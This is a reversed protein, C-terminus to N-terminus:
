TIFLTPGRGKVGSSIMSVDLSNLQQQVSPRIDIVLILYPLFIYVHARAYKSTTSLTVTNTETIYYPVVASVEALACFHVTSTSTNLALPALSHFYYM